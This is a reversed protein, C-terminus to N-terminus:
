INEQIIEFGASALDNWFGPYSKTVVEPNEIRIDGNLIALPAFTMAM